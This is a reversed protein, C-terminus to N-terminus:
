IKKILLLKVIEDKENIKIKGNDMYLIEAREACIDM